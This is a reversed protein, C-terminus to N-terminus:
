VLPLIIYADERASYVMVIGESRMNGLMEELKNLEDGHRGHKKKITSVAKRWKGAKQSLELLEALVAYPVASCVIVEAKPLNLVQIIPTLKSMAAERLKREADSKTSSRLRQETFQVSVHVSGPVGAAMNPETKDRDAVARDREPASGLSHSKKL